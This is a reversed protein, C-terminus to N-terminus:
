FRYGRNANYSFSVLGDRYDIKMTTQGLTTFGIFGAVEM